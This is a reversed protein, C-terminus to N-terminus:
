LFSYMWPQPDSARQRVSTWLSMGAFLQMCNEAGAALIEGSKTGDSRKPSKITVAM